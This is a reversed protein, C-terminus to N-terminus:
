ATAAEAGAKATVAAPMVTEAHRKSGAGSDLQAWFEEVIGDWSRKGVNQLALESQIRRREAGRRLQEMARALPGPLSTDLITGWGEDAVIEHAGCRDSVLVPLGSAQAELVVNGFTDTRSPFVFLDASAYATALDAGELLGTFVVGSQPYRRELEVRYPGDGVVVLEADDGLERLALFAEILVDLNKEKSVRGVYLFKFGEQRGFRQWFRPDRRSPHFVEVDVGRPLLRLRADDFGRELLDDRYTRSPVFLLDMQDFFWRMYSWTIGELMPSDTFARVYAPFDTHYIGVAPVGFLRAAALGLMGMPGPTSIVVETVARKEFERLVDLYPPLSLKQGRYEALEYIGAPEFNIVPGKEPYEALSTFVTVRYDRRIAAQACNAITRAVGNPEAYTDTFWGRHDPRPPMTTTDYRTAVQDLLGDDKRQTHFSALYPAICLALPGLSAMAQLSEVIRGTRLDGMATRLAADSLRHGLGSAMQFSREAAGNGNGDGAGNGNAPPLSRGELLEVMEKAVLRDVQRMNSLKRRLFHRVTFKFKGNGNGNGNEDGQSLLRAFVEDLLDSGDTSRSLLRDRYFRYGISYFTRALELSSGGKGGPLHLGQRLHDLFAEVTAAYPTETYAGGIYLGSHDDSGGTLTKIWPEPERPEIGHREALAEIKEPTLQAFVAKALDCARPDRAGNIGEFRKFLLILKEFHEVTLKGNVSFLPHAVSYLIKEDLLYDRFEYINERLEQVDRHQAETIGLVLCHIKCGDEPFYTTVENSLFTGPLHAIELAGDISNHDSITVFDMGRARCRDYVESPETYSEPAGIRRLFWDSPRNSHRSHVHLDARSSM